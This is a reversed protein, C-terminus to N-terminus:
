APRVEQMVATSPAPMALDRMGERFYRGGRRGKEFVFYCLDTAQTARFIRAEWLNGDIRTMPTAATSWQNFEGVVFVEDADPIRKRITWGEPNRMIM